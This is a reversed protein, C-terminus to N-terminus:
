CHTLHPTESLILTHVPSTSRKTEEWTIEQSSRGQNAVTQLDAMQFERFTEIDPIKGAVFPPYLPRWAQSGWLALSLRVKKSINGLNHKNYNYFLINSKQSTM